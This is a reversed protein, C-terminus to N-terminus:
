TKKKMKGMGEIKGEIVRKLPFNKRSIGGVWNVKRRGISSV